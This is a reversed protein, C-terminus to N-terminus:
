FVGVGIDVGVVSVLLVAAAAAAASFWVGSSGRVVSAAPSKSLDTVFAGMHIYGPRVGNRYPRNNPGPPPAPTTWPNNSVTQYDVTVQASTTSPLVQVFFLFDDQKEPCFM